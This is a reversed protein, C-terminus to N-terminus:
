NAQPDKFLAYFYIWVDKSKIVQEVCKPITCNTHINRRNAVELIMQRVFVWLEPPGLKNSLLNKLVRPAVKRSNVVLM